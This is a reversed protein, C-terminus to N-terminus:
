FVWLEDSRATEVLHGCLSPSRALSRASLYRPIDPYHVTNNNNNQETRYNVQFSVPRFGARRHEKFNFGGGVSPITQLCIIVSFIQKGDFTKLPFVNLFLVRPKLGVIHKWNPKICCCSKNTYILTHHNCCM